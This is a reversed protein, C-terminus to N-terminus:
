VSAARYKELLEALQTNSLRGYGAILYREDIGLFRGLLHRPERRDGIGAQYRIEVVDVDARRGVRVRAPTFGDTEVWSAGWSRGLSKLYFGNADLRLGLGPVFGAVGAYLGVAALVLVVIGADNGNAVMAAGILACVIGFALSLYSGKRDPALLRPEM